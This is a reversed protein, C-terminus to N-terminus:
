AEDLAGAPARSPVPRWLSAACACCSGSFESSQRVALPLDSREVPAWGRARFFVEATDTLLVLTAIGLDAARAVAVDVLAGGLGQDRAEPAVAVSRLLCHDGYPEVAACGRVAGSAAPAVLFHAVHAETLDSTPLGSASVLAVIAPWDGSAAPRIM